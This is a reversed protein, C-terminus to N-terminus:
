KYNQKTTDTDAMHNTLLVWQKVGIVLDAPFITELSFELM